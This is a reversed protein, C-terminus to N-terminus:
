DPSRGSRRARAGLRDGQAHDEVVSADLLVGARGGLKELVRGRRENPRKEFRELDALRQLDLEPGVDRESRSEAAGRGQGDGQHPSELAHARPVQLAHVPHIEHPVDLRPDEGLGCADLIVVRREFASGVHDREPPLVVSRRGGRDRRPCCRVRRNRAKASRPIFLQCIRRARRSPSSADRSAELLGRAAMTASATRRESRSPRRERRLSPLAGPGTTEVGRTLAIARRPPSRTPPLAQPAPPPQTTKRASAEM